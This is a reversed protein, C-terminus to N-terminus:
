ANRFTSLRAKTLRTGDTSLENRRFGSNILATVINLPLICNGM